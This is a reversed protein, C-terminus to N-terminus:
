KLLRLVNSCLSGCMGMSGCEFVGVGWESGCVMWVDLADDFMGPPAGSMCAAAPDAPLQITIDPASPRGPCGQIAKWCLKLLQVHTVIKAPNTLAVRHLISYQM